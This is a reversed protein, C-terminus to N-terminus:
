EADDVVGVRALLVVLALLVVPRRAATPTAIGADLGNSDISDGWSGDEGEHETAGVEDEGREGEEGREEKEDEGRLSTLLRLKRDDDRKPMLPRDCTRPAGICGRHRLEGGPVGPTEPGLAELM